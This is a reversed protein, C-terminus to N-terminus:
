SEESIEIVGKNELRDRFDETRFYNVFVDWIGLLSSSRVQLRNEEPVALVEFYDVFHFVASHTKAYIYGEREFEITTRPMEKVSQQVLPWAEKMPMKLKYPRISHVFTIAETSACNPLPPCWYLSQDPEPEKQPLILCGSLGTLLFFLATIRLIQM